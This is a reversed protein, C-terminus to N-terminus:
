RSRPELWGVPGRFRRSTDRILAGQKRMTSHPVCIVEVNVRSKVRCSPIWYRGTTEVRFRRLQSFTQNTGTPYWWKRGNKPSRIRLDPTRNEEWAGRHPGSAQDQQVHAGSPGSPRCRDPADARQRRGGTRFWTPLGVDSRSPAKGVDCGTVEPAPTPLRTLPWARVEAHPVAHYRGDAFRRPPRRGARPVRYRDGDGM